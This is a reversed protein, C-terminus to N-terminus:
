EQGKLCKDLLLRIMEDKEDMRRDKKEIQDRLFDMRAEYEKCRNEHDAKLKEIQERMEDIIENKQALIIEFSEVKARTVDDATSLTDEILLAQAIPRLTAEYNFSDEIESNKAFVRRLTTESVFAGTADVMKKIQPISLHQQSQVAKLKVVIEQAATLEMFLPEKEKEPPKRESTSLQVNM